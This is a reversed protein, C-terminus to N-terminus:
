FFQINLKKWIAMIESNKQATNTQGLYTFNLLYPTTIEQECCINGKTECCFFQKSKHPNSKKGVLIKQYTLSVLFPITCLTINFSM